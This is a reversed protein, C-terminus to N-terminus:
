SCAPASRLFIMSSIASVGFSSIIILNLYYTLRDTSEFATFNNSPNAM